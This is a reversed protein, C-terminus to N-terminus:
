VCLVFEWPDFNTLLVWKKSLKKLLKKTGYCLPCRTERGRHLVICRVVSTLQVQWYLMNISLTPLHSVSMKALAMDNSNRAFIDEVWADWGQCVRTKVTTIYGIQGSTPWKQNQGGSQLTPSGGLRCPNHLWDAWKHAVESKTGRKSANPVGGLRCPLNCPSSICSLPIYLVFIGLNLAMHTSNPLSECCIHGHSWTIPLRSSLGM